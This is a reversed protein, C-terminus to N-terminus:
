TPPRPPPSVASCLMLHDSQLRTATTPYWLVRAPLLAAATRRSALVDDHPAGARQLIARPFLFVPHSAGGRVPLFFGRCNCPCSFCCVQPQFPFPFPVGFSPHQQFMAPSMSLAAAVQAAQTQQHHAPSLSSYAQMPQVAHALVQAQPQQQQQQPILAQPHLQAQPAQVPMAPAFGGGAILPPPSASRTSGTTATISGAGAAAAAAANSQQGRQSPPASNLGQGSTTSPAPSVSTM